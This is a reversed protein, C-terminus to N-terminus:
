RFLYAPKKIQSNSWSIFGVSLSKTLKIKKINENLIGGLACIETNWNKSITNFKLPGLIKNISYKENYFLPSLFIVKCLQKKKFYYELQNHASGIIDFKNYTKKIPIKNDSTLFIGNAKYKHALSINNTIFFPIKNKKCFIKLINIKKHDISESKYIIAINKLKIINKIIKQDLTNSFFYFKIHTM